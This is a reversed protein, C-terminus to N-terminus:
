VASQQGETGEVESSEVADIIIPYSQRIWDEQSNVPRIRCEMRLLGPTISEPFPANLYLRHFKGQGFTFETKGIITEDGVPPRIAIEAEYTVMEQDDEERLWVAVLRFFYHLLPQRVADREQPRAIAVSIRELVNFHSLLRTTKDEVGAQSCLIYVPSPM